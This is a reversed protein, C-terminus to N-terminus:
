EKYKYEGFYKSEANRRVQVAEEFNDFHGLNIRKDNVCIYAKWKNNNKNWCVGTVGSQNDNRLGKNMSNQSRNVVRLESKRNDYKKHYIHDVEISSDTINLIYRHLIIKNKDRVAYLYGDKSFRWYYDKVKDYDDLDFYFEKGQKTYGIGYDGSLDYANKLNSRKHKKNSYQRLNEERLCGCSKTRGSTLDGGLVNKIAGCECKCKWIARNGSTTPKYKVFKLVELRGFKKGSLDKLQGM